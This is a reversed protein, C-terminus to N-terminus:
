ARRPTDEQGHRLLDVTTSPMSKEPQGGVLSQPLHHLWPRPREHGERVSLLKGNPYCLSQGTQVVTQSNEKGLGTEERKREDANSGSLDKTSRVREGCREAEQYLPLDCMLQPPTLVAYVSSDTILAISM